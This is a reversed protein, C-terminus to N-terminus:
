KTLLWTRWPRSQSLSPRSNSSMSGPYLLTPSSSGMRGQICRFQSYHRAKPVHPSVGQFHIINYIYIYRKNCKEHININVYYLYWWCVFYFLFLFLYMKFSVLLQFKCSFIFFIYVNLYCYISNCNLICHM